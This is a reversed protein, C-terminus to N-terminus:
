KKKKLQVYCETYDKGKKGVFITAGLSVSDDNFDKDKGNENAKNEAVEEEAGALNNWILNENPKVTAIEKYTIKGTKPDETKELVAYTDNKAVGERAGIKVKISGDPDM